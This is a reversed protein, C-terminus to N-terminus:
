LQRFTEAVLSAPDMEGGSKGGAEGGGKGETRQRKPPRKECDEEELEQSVAIDVAEEQSLNHLASVALHHM